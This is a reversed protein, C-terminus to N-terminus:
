GILDALLELDHGVIGRSVGAPGDYSERGLRAHCGALKDGM